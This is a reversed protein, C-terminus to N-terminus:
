FRIRYYGPTLQEGLIIIGFQYLDVTITEMTCIEKWARQMGNSWYIDDLIIMGRTIFPKVAKYYKITAEYTHNGDIFVLELDKITPLLETLVDDFLKNIFKVNQLELAKINQRAFEVLSKNGEITYIEAKSNGEAMYMTSIGISTGLELIGSPKYHRVIRFLLMGYKRQVSSFKILKQIQRENKDFTRSGGGIENVSVKQNAKKLARIRGFIKGYAKHRNKDFVVQSVFGYVFPSHVGHGKKYKAKLFYIIYQIISNLKDSFNVM